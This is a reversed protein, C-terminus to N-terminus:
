CGIWCRHMVNHEEALIQYRTPIPSNQGFALSPALNEFEESGIVLPDLCKASILLYTVSSKHGGAHTRFSIFKM